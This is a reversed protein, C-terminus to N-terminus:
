FVLFIATCHINKLIPIKWYSQCQEYNIDGKTIYKSILGVQYENQLLFANHQNNPPKTYANSSISIHYENLYM